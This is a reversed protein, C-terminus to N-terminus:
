ALSDPSPPTCLLGLRTPKLCCLLFLSSSFNFNIGGLTLARTSLFVSCKSKTINFTIWTFNSPSQHRESKGSTCEGYLRQVNNPESYNDACSFLLFYVFFVHFLPFLKKKKITVCSSGRPISERLLRSPFLSSTVPYCYDKIPKPNEKWM